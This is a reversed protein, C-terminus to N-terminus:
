ETQLNKRVIDLYPEGYPPYITKALIFGLQDVRDGSRGYFGIIRYGEPFTELHYSGGGGGFHPSKEGTNTIFTVSDLRDGSRYEIQEVFQGDPVSWEAASGGSGGQAPTYFKKVGDGLLIQLNDINSGHRILFKVANLTTSPVSFSFPSGGNGGYAISRTDVTTAPPPKPKDPLPKRCSLSECYSDLAKHFQQVAETLNFGQEKVKSFLESLEIVKYKIPM